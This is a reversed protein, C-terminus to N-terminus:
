FTPVGTPGTAELHIGKWWPGPHEGIAVAYRRTGDNRFLLDSRPLRRHGIGGMRRRQETIRRGSRAVRRRGFVRRRCCAGITDVALMGITRLVTGQRVAEASSGRAIGAAAAPGHCQEGGCGPLDDGLETFQDRLSERTRRRKREVENRYFQVSCRSLSCYPRASREIFMLRVTSQRAVLCLGMFAPSLSDFSVLIYTTHHEM